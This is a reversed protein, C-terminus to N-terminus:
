HSESLEAEGSDLYRIKRKPQPKRTKPKVPQRQDKLRSYAKAEQWGQSDPKFIALLNGKPTFFSEIYPFEEIDSIKLARLVCVRVSNFGQAEKFEVKLAIRTSNKYRYIGTLRFRMPHFRAEISRILQTETLNELENEVEGELVEQAAM